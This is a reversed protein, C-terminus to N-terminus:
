HIRWRRLRRGILCAPLVMGVVPFVGPACTGCADDTPPPPACADGVGDANSDAQNPNFITPCNDCVDGVGDGDTDPECEDPVGNDDCDESTGDAIDQGDGIGNENCDPLVFRAALIDYDTGINVTLPNTSTWVALWNGRGDSTLYPYNDSGTDSAANTNLPALPTWSTGNDASLSVLVDTDNGLGFVSGSNEWVCVWRDQEDTAIRPDFDGISDSTANSNMAAPSSWTAGNDSSHAVFIDYDSGVAGGLNESSVWVVVWNGRQDTAIWSDGDIGTDSSANTNLPAPSSWTAGNDSSRAVLLDGDTDITGGLNENSNWVVVWHGQRDSAITPSNDDGVDGAANSNLATVPTWNVGNNTSRSVLIDADNDITGGLDDYSTWIVVWIGEGDTSIRATFDNDVDTDANSNLPAPSTWTAGNDASRAVLIDLDTGLNGGLNERSAWVTVWNGRGDTAVSPSFDEGTDTDANTNLRAPSSWTKGNDSSRSVLIDFDWGLVGDLNETSSWVVVWNGNGDTAAMPDSDDGTDSGANSNLPAPASIPVPFQGSAELSGLLVVTAAFIKFRM